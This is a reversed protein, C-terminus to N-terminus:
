GTLGHKEQADPTRQEVARRRCSASLISRIRSLCADASGEVCDDHVRVVASATKYEAAIM